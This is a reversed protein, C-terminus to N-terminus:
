SWDWRNTIASTSLTVHSWHFCFTVTVLETGASFSSFRSCFILFREVKQGWCSNLPATLTIFVLWAWCIDNWFSSSGVLSSFLVGWCNHAWLRDNNGTYVTQVIQFRRTPNCRTRLGHLVYRYSLTTKKIRPNWLRYTIEVKLFWAIHNCRLHTMAESRWGGDESPPINLIYFM